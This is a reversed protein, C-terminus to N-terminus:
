GPFFPTLVM